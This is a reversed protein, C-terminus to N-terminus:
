AVEGGIGATLLRSRVFPQNQQLSRQCTSGKAGDDMEAGEDGDDTFHTKAEDILSRLQEIIKENPM